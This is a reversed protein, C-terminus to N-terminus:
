SHPLLRKLHEKGPATMIISCIEFSTELFELSSTLFSALFGKRCQCKFTVYIYKINRLMILIDMLIKKKFLMKTQAGNYIIHVM